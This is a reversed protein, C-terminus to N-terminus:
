QNWSARSTSDRSLWVWTSRVLGWHSLAGSHLKAAMRVATSFGDPETLSQQSPDRTNIIDVGMCKHGHRPMDPRIRGVGSCNEVVEVDRQVDGLEQKVLCLMSLVVM